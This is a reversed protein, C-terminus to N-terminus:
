CVKENKIKNILSKHGFKNIWEDPDYSKDNKVLVIDKYSFITYGVNSYQDLFIKTKKASKRGPEDGDFMFIIRDTFRNLKAIHEETLSTGMTGVANKLGIQHLRIVDIQGEVLIVSNSKIIHPIAENLGFLYFSKPFEGHIYPGIGEKKIPVRGSFTIIDGYENKIPFIVKGIFVELEKFMNSFKTNFPCWGISFNEISEKRIKRKKLFDIAYKRDPSTYLAEQMKKLINFYRTNNEEINYRLM